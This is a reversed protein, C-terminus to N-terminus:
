SEEVTVSVIGSIAISQTSSNEIFPFIDQGVPVSMPEIRDPRPNLLAQPETPPYIPSLQPHKMSWCDNCTRLGQWEKRLQTYKYKFGCRDCVAKSMFGNANRSM